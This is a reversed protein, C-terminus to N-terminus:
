WWFTLGGRFLGGGSTNTTRGTRKEIFEPTPGDDTRHRVFGIIDANIAFHRGIRYELGAGGQGGFYSYDAKFDGNDDREKLLPSAVESRVTAYALHIGGTLYIQARSRPNLFILGNLSVPVESRQFGNYDAGGLVDLGVDFAFAPVPRYRLSVGLGGMGADKDTEENHGLMAGELRLNLGWESHWRPRAARLPPPPFPRVHRVSYGPTVIIVRAGPPPAPQYVVVPPPAAPPPAPEEVAQRPVPARAPPAPPAEDEDVAAPPPPPPLPRPAPAPAAQVQVEADACFWAGPPCNNKADQALAPLSLSMATAIVAHTLCRRM